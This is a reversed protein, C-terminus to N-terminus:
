TQTAVVQGDDGQAKTLDDAHQHARVKEFRDDAARLADQLDAPRGDAAELQDGGLM